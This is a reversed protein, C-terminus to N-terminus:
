AVPPTLSARAIVRDEYHRISRNFRGGCTILTIVPEGADGLFEEAEADAPVQRVWLVYFTLERGEGAVTIADGAKLESLRFFSGQKRNWDKHGALLANGAGAPMGDWWAVEHASKPTGMAGDAEVGVPVIPAEVGLVPLLIREPRFVPVPTPAPTALAVVPSQPAAAVVAAERPGPVLVSAAVAAASALVVVPRRVALLIANLRPDVADM